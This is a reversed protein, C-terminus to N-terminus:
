SALSEQAYRHSLLRRLETRGRQIRSRVTGVPCSLIRAIEEYSLGEMDCLVVPLRFEVELQRLARSVDDQLDRQELREQPLPTTEQLTEEWSHEGGGNLSISPHRAQRRLSDMYLNHLLRYMWGEFSRPRQFRWTRWIRVFGEQVLDRAEAERGGTLQYAMRYALSGYRRLLESFDDIPVSPSSFPIM